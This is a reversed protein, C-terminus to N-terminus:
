HAVTKSFLHIVLIGVLILGMGLVAPLDLKQGFVFYGIVAIFVIGFGSWIAYTIGVPLFKLTMALLYFSVAYAVVVIVSPWLRSFQQSAQLASTGITEMLVAAILLLYAKQM